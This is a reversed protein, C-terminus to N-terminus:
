LPKSEHKLRMETQIFGCAPCGWIIYTDKRDIEAEYERRMKGQCEECKM